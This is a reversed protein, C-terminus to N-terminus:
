IHILSLDTGTPVRGSGKRGGGVEVWMLGKRCVNVRTTERSSPLADYRTSTVSPARYKTDREFKSVYPAIFDWFRDLAMEQILSPYIDLLGLATQVFYIVLTYTM